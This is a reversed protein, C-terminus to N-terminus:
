KCEFLSFVRIEDGERLPHMVPHRGIRGREVGQGDRQHHQERREHIEGGFVVGRAFATLRLHLGLIVRAHHENTQEALERGVDFAHREAIRVRNMECAKIIGRVGMARLHRQGLGGDSQRQIVGAALDLQAQLGLRINMAHLHLIADARTRPLIAAPKGGGFQHDDDPERRPRHIIEAHLVDAAASARGLPAIDHAVDAGSDQRVAVM